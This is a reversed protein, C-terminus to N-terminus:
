FTFLLHNIVEDITLWPRSGQFHGAVAIKKWVEM